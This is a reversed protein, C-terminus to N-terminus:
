HDKLGALRNKAYEVEAIGSDADKWSELFVMIAEIIIISVLISLKM